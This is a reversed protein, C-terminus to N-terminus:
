RGALPRTWAVMRVPSREGLVSHAAEPDTVINSDAGATRNGDAVTNGMLVVEAVQDAIRLEERVAM